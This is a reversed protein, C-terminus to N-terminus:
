TVNRNEWYERVGAAGSGSRILEIYIKYEFTMDEEKNAIIKKIAKVSAPPFSKIKQAINLAVDYCGPSDCVANVLGWDCAQTALVRKGTLLMEAARIEGIRRYLGGGGGMGPIIGLQVEPQAFWANKNAYILDACLALECGGGIAPGNVAAILPQPLKKASRELEKFMIHQNLWEESNRLSRRDKLDAGACFAVGIGTMIVTNIDSSDALFNFYYVLEQCMGYNLANCVEPRALKILAIGPELIKAEIFKFSEKTM